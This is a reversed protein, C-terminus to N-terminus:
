KTAFIGRSRQPLIHPKRTTHNNIKTFSNRSQWIDFILLNLQFKVELGCGKHSNPRQYSVASSRQLEVARHPARHHCLGRIRLVAWNRIENSQFRSRDQWSSYGWLRFVWNWLHKKMRDSLGWFALVPYLIGGRGWDGNLYSLIAWGNLIPHNRFETSFFSIQRRSSIRPHAM